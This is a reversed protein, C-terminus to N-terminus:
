TPRECLSPFYDWPGEPEVHVSRSAKAKGESSPKTESVKAPRRGVARGQWRGHGVLANHRLPIHSLSTTGWPGEDCCSHTLEPGISSMTFVNPFGQLGHLIFPHPGCAQLLSPLLPAAQQFPEAPECLGPPGRPALSVGIGAPCGPVHLVHADQGPVSAVPGRMGAIRRSNYFAM